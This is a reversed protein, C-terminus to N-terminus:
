EWRFVRGAGALLVIVWASLWALDVEVSAFAGGDSLHQMGDTIYSVPLFKTLGSIGPPLSSALLGLLIMPYAVGQAIATARQPDKVWGGIALGMALFVLYGLILLLFLSLLDLHVTFLSSAAVVIGATQAVGVLASAMAHSVVFVSRSMGTGKLRQMVGTSKYTAFAGAALMLASGIINFTVIGPLLADIVSTDRTHLGTAKISVVPVQKLVTEDFSEVVGKLVPVSAQGAAGSGYTVQVQSPVVHGTSDRSLFDGPIVVEADAKGQELLSHAATSSAVSVDFTNVSRLDKVLTSAEASGASDVVVVRTHPGPGDFVLKVAVLLVILLAFLSFSAVPNRVYMKLNAITLSLSARFRISM